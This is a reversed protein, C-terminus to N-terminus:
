LTVATSVACLSPSGESTADLVVRDSVSPGATKPTPALGFGVLPASVTISVERISSEVETGNNELVLWVKDGGLDIAKAILAYGDGIDWPVGTILTRNEGSKMELITTSLVDPCGNVAICKEGFWGMVKYDDGALNLSPNRYEAGRVTATYTLEDTPITNVGGELPQITLIESATDKGVDYWFGAFSQANWTYGAFASSSLEQMTGRIEIREATETASATGDMALVVLAFLLIIQRNM